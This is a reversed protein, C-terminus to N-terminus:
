LRAQEAYPDRTPTTSSQGLIRVTTCGISVIQVGNLPM